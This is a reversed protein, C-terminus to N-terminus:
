CSLIFWQKHWCLSYKKIKTQRTASHPQIWCHQPSSLIVLLLYFLCWPFGAFSQSSCCVSSSDQVVSLWSHHHSPSHNSEPVTNSNLLTLSVSLRPSRWPSFLPVSPSLIVKPRASSPVTISSVFLPNRYDPSLTLCFSCLFLYFYVEGKVYQPHSPPITSLCAVSCQDANSLPPPAFTPVSSWSM